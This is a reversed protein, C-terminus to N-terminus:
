AIVDVGYFKKIWDENLTEGYRASDIVIDQVGNVVMTVPGPNGYESAAFLAAFSYGDAYYVM